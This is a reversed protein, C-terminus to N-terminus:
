HNAKPASARRWLQSLKIDCLSSSNCDMRQLSDTLYLEEFKGTLSNVGAEGTSVQYHSKNQNGLKEIYRLTQKGFQKFTGNFAKKAFTNNMLQSLIPLTANGLNVTNFIGVGLDIILEKDRYSEGLFKRKIFQLSAAYGLYGVIAAIYLPYSMSTVITVVVAGITGTAINPVIASWKAKLAKFAAHELEAIEVLAHFRKVNYNKSSKDKIKNLYLEQAENMDNVLNRGTNSRYLYHTLLGQAKTYGGILGNFGKGSQKYKIMDCLRDFRQKDNKPKGNLMLNLEHKDDGKMWEKYNIDDRLKGTFRFYRVWPVYARFWTDMSFPDYYKDEYKRELQKIEEASKDKITGKLLEVGTGLGRMSRRAEEEDPLAGYKVLSTLFEKDKCRMQAVRQEVTMNHDQMHRENLYKAIEPTSQRYAEGVWDGNRCALGYALKVYRAPLKDGKLISLAAQQLLESRFFLKIYDALPEGYRKEFGRKLNINGDVCKELLKIAKVINFNGNERVLRKFSIASSLELNGEMRACLLEVQESTKVKRKILESFTQPVKGFSTFKDAHRELLNKTVAARMDEAITDIAYIMNTLLHKGRYKKLTYAINDSLADVPKDGILNLLRSTDLGKTRDRIWTELNKKDRAAFAEPLYPIIESGSQIITRWTKDGDMSFIGFNRPPDRRMEIVAAETQVRIQIGRDVSDRLIRNRVKRLEPFREILDNQSYNYTNLEELAMERTKNSINRPLYVGFDEGIEQLNKEYTRLRCATETKHLLELLAESEPANHRLLRAHKGIEAEFESDLKALAGPDQIRAGRLAGRKEAFELVAAQIEPITESVSLSAWQADYKSDSIAPTNERLQPKDQGPTQNM